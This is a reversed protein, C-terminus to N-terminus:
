RTPVSLPTIPVCAPPGVESSRHSSPGVRPYTRRERWPTLRLASQSNRHWWRLVQTSPSLALSSPTSGGAHCVGDDLSMPDTDLAIGQRQGFTLGRFSLLGSLPCLRREPRCM